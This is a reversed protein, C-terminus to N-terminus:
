TTFIPNSYFNIKASMVSLLSHFFRTKLMNNHELTNIQAPLFQIEYCKLINPFRYSSVSGPELDALYQRVRM